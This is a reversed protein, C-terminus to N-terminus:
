PKVGIPWVRKGAGAGCAALRGGQGGIRTIFERSM